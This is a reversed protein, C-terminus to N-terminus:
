PKVAEIVTGLGEADLFGLAFLAIILGCFFLMAVSAIVITGVIRPIRPRKNSSPDAMTNTAIAIKIKGLETSLKEYAKRLLPVETSIGNNIKAVLGQPGNLTREIGRIDKQMLDIERTKDCVCTDSM